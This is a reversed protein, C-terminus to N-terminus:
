SSRASQGPSPPGFWFYGEADVRALDGSLYWGGAFRKTYRQPDGVYARFMSPWGPRLALEGVEGVEARRAAGDELVPRGDAGRFLVAAEIGPVPRGMSGPRIQMGRHNSIMIAGTETQSWNDHVPLGLAEVGWLVVEPNLAEGVSAVHRLASLDFAGPLDVGFSMLRRLAAPATYWVNVRQQELLQYWRRADFEGAYSLLTAGRLLPAIVGYSTGTVWGPDATCWFVDGRRLDLAWGATAHHAVAAEHVHLAGKPTGTRGSTFHLLAPDEPMTAAVPYDPSATDLAAALDLTAPGATGGVLLVHRLGPLEARIAEVKRRYLLPTTVVVRVGGLRLRQRVPEPGFSCFLPCFVAGRKLTGLAAVYLEPQRGLLTAVRDGRGVGLDGLVEAFRNTLQRLREYSLDEVAGDESVCRLALRFGEGADVHRDVAEYGINLGRGGPLGALQSRAQAWSFTGLEAEYSAREQAPVVPVPVIRTQQDSAM